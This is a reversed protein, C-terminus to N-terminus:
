SKGQNERKNFSNEKDLICTIEVNRYLKSLKRFLMTNEISLLLISIFFLEANM